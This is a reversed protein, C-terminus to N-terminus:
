RGTFVATRKELFAAMGETQDSSDFCAAFLDAEEQLGIEIDFVGALRIAKKAAIVARPGKSGITEALELARELATGAEVVELALGIRVAEEARVMRGTFIMERARQAGVLRALRQTGGFGPIVGLSVEPQGFRAKAGAIILDCALALEMGGGLAFGDVAAITVGPFLSLRHLVRQGRRSFVEADARTMDKMATIDAGAVFAKDGAGTVIMHRIGERQIGEIAQGLQHIVEENLANLADPRNITVVATQNRWDVNVLGM